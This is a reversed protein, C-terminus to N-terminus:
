LLQRRKVDLYHSVIGASLRQDRVLSLQVGKQRLNHQTGRLTHWLLHGGLCRYLDDVQEVVGGSFLPRAAAPRLMAVSVLHRRSLVGVSKLFGEAVAPEELSTLFILLARRKLKRALFSVVEEYAPNATGPSLTYLSDRCSGFHERGSGARKFSLVRDSFATVGFLDGQKQAMSGLILASHLYSELLPEDGQSAARPVPRASLRSVDIIVYVEQSSECRFEKTVLHGRKATARWHVDALSDGPLYLRLKEFERGQGVQRHPRVKADSRNLFLAALTKREGRLNPYVRLETGTPRSGQAHWLGLPSRVWLRCPPLLFNGRQTGTVPWQVGVGQLSAPLEVRQERCASIFGNPTQLALALTAPLGAPNSVTFSVIGVRDRSLLLRQPFELRIGKSRLEALLADAAAIAALLFCGGYVALQAEPFVTLALTAPLVTIAFLRVSKSAPVIL